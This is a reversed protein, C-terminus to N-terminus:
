LVHEVRSRPVSSRYPSSTVAAPLTGLSESISRAGADALRRTQGLLDAVEQSGALLGRHADELLSRWPEPADAALERLSPETLGRAGALETVLVARELEAERVSTTAREVEESAWDLFRTEGALLLQRLEVLKFVLLDVLVRERTLLRALAEM